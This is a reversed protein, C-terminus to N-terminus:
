NKNNITSKMLTDEVTGQVKILVYYVSIDDYFEIKIWEYVNNIYFFICFVHNYECYHKSSQNLWAIM